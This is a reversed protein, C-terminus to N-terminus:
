KPTGFIDVAAGLRTSSSKGLSFRDLRLVDKFAFDDLM